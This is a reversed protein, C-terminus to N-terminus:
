LINGQIYYFQLNDSTYRSDVRLITHNTKPIYGIQMVNVVMIIFSTYIGVTYSSLVHDIM